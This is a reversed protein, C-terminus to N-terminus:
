NRYITLRLQKPYIEEQKRRESPVAGAHQHSETSHSPVEVLTDEPERPAGGDTVDMAEQESPSIRDDTINMAQLMTTPLVRTREDERSDNGELQDDGIM